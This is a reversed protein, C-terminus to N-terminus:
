FKQNPKITELPFSEMSENATSLLNPSSTLNKRSIDRSSFGLSGEQGVHLFPPINPTSESQCLCVWIGARNGLYEYVHFSQREWQFCYRRQHVVDRSPDASNSLIQYMRKTIVQKLEVEEGTSLMKVTTLGYADFGSISRKRIFSYLVQDGSGEEEEALSEAKDEMSIGVEESVTVSSATNTATHAVDSGTSFVNELSAARARKERATPAAGVGKELMIKEVTFIQVNPLQSIDPPTLLPYKHSRRTLSPLGVFNSLMQVLLEMKREFTRNDRNDIIVHHPHGHWAMQTKRDQNIAESISEHRAANNALSYFPEAGDAATVLHFVADYRGERASVININARELVGNWIDDTVYASGDMIGRDCLIVSKTGVSVAYNTM